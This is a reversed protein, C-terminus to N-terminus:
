IIVIEEWLSSNQVIQAERRSSKITYMCEPNGSTFDNALGITDSSSWTTKM